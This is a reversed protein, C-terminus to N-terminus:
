IYIHKKHHQSEGQKDIPVAWPTMRTPDYLAIGIVLYPKSAESSPVSSLMVQDLSQSNKVANSGHKKLHRVSSEPQSAQSVAITAYQQRNKMGHQYTDGRFNVALDEIKEQSQPVASTAMSSERASSVQWQPAKLKIIKM